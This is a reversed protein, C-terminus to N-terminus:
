TKKYFHIHKSEGFKKLAKGWEGKEAMCRAYELEYWSCQMDFLYQTPNSEFRTFMGIRNEADDPRGARMLYKTTKNNIYRDGLDLGRAHDMIEAAAPVNGSLKTLRGKKEYIDVGTPTHALCKEIVALGASYEGLLEHLHSKLYYTWLLSSPPEEQEDEEVAEDKSWKGSEELNALYGDVLGEVCKFVEHKKLDIPDKAVEYKNTQSNPVKFLGSVDAGLSPVGKKLNARLYVDMRSKLSDGSTVTLPIRKVASSRPYLPKLVTEYHSVVTAKQEESLDFTNCVTDM